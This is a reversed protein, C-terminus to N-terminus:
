FPGGAHIFASPPGQRIRQWLLEPLTLVKTVSDSEPM